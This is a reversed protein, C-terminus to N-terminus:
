HVAASAVELESSDTASALKKRMATLATLPEQGGYVVSMLTVFYRDMGNLVDDM